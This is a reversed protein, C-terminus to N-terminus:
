ATVMAANLEIGSLTRLNSCKAAALAGVLKNGDGEGCTLNEVAPYCRLIEHACSPMIVTRVTHFSKGKFANKIPTTM